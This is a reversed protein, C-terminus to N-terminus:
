KRRIWKDLFLKYYSPSFYVFLIFTTALPIYSILYVIISTYLQWPFVICKFTIQVIFLPLKFTIMILPTIILHKHQRVQEALIISYNQNNNARHKTQTYAVLLIITSVFNVLFPITCNILRITIDYTQIWQYQYKILCWRRADNRPDNILHRSFLQHCSSLTLIIFLLPIM